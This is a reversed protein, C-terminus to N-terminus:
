IGSWEIWPSFGDTKEGYGVKPLELVAAKWVVFVIVNSVHKFYRSTNYIKNLVRFYPSKPM